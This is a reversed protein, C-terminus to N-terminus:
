DYVPQFNLTKKCDLFLKGANDKQLTCFKNRMRFPQGVLVEEKLLAGINHEALLEFDNFSVPIYNVTLDECVAVWATLVFKKGQGVAFMNVLYVEIVPAAEKDDAMQLRIMDETVFTTILRIVIDGNKKPHAYYLFGDHCFLEYPKIEVVNEIAPIDEEEGAFVPCFYLEENKSDMDTWVYFVGTKSLVKVLKANIEAEPCAARLLLRAQSRCYVVCSADAQTSCKYLNM